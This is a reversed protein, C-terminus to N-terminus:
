QSKALDITLEDITFNNKVNQFTWLPLTAAFAVRVALFLLYCFALMLCCFFPLFLVFFLVLLHLCKPLDFTALTPKEVTPSGFLPRLLLLLLLLLPLLVPVLLLLLLVM